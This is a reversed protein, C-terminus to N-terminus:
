FSNSFMLLIIDSAELTIACYRFMQNNWVIQLQIISRGQLRKNIVFKVEWERYRRTQLKKSSENLLEPWVTSYGFLVGVAVYSLWDVSYSEAQIGFSEVAIRNLFGRWRGFKEPYAGRDLAV